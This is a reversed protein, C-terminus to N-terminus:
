FHPNRFYFKVGTSKSTIQLSLMKRQVALVRCLKDANSTTHQAQPYLYLIQIFKSGEWGVKRYM